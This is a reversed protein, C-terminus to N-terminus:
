TSNNSNLPEIQMKRHTISEDFVSFGLRRYLREAPNGKIVKLWVKQNNVASQSIISQILGTGIGKNQYQNVIQIEGLYIDKDSAVIKIFGILQQQVEIVQYEEPVFNSRFLSERWPYVKEVYDKMNERHIRNLTELDEDSATRIQYQM